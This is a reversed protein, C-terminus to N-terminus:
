PTQPLFSLLPAIFQEPAELLGLHQLQPLILLQSGTIERSIAESMAPTSGTDNECTIILTPHTLAPTPAILELVGNALVFRHKAYNETDNRLLTQRITDVKDPQQDRFGATFWRILAADLVAEIGGQASAIAQAEVQEQLAPDREHPSNLITLSLVEDPYDMAFRRNIMGGLSFGVLHAAQLSLCDMLERIQQSLTSLTVQGEPRRSQGHGCLDYTIVYYREAFAPVFSDWTQHTLGLGHIFIVPPTEPSGYTHYFTGSDTVPM